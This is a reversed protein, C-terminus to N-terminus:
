TIKSSRSRATSAPSVLLLHCADSLRSAIHCDFSQWDDTLCDPQLMQNQLHRSSEPFVSKSQWCFWRSQLHGCIYKLAQNYAVKFSTLLTACVWLTRWWILMGSKNCQRCCSYPTLCFLYIMKQFKEERKAFYLYSTISSSSSCVWRYLASIGSSSSSSSGHEHSNSDKIKWGQVLRTVIVRKSNKCQLRRLMKAQAVSIFHFFQVTTKAPRWRGLVKWNARAASSWPVAISSSMQASAQM